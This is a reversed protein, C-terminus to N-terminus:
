FTTVKNIINKKISWLLQSRAKKLTVMEGSESTIVKTSTKMSFAMSFSLERKTFSAEVQDLNKGIQKVKIGAVM